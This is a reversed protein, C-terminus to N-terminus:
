HLLFFHKSGLQTSAPEAVWVDIANLSGLVFYLAVEVQLKRSM